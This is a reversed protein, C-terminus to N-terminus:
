LLGEAAPYWGKNTFMNHWQQGQEEQNQIETYINYIYIYIITQLAHYLTICVHLMSYICMYM